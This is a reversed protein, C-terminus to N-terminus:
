EEDSLIKKHKYLLWHFRIVFLVLTTFMNFVLVWLFELDYVLIISIVLIIYNAYTAWVLADLRLKSILEDEVKEASFAVLMAGIIITLSTIEDFLNNKIWHFFKSGEFINSVELSFVKFDLFKPGEELMFFILTMVISVSFIVWGVKKFSNPFLYRAKM